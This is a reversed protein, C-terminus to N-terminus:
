GAVALREITTGRACRDEYVRTCKKYLAFTELAKKEDGYVKWYGSIKHGAARNKIFGKVDEPPYGLFLGIEHPFGKKKELRKMLCAICNHINETEYGCDKLIEAAEIGSLDNKLRDPRYIYIMADRCSVKLPIVRLGKKTLIPNMRRIDAWLVKRSVYSCTFINGTKLGALTPACQQVILEESM